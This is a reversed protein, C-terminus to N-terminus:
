QAPESDEIYSNSCEISDDNKIIQSYRKESPSIGVFIEEQEDGIQRQAILIMYHGPALNIIRSRPPEEPGDICMQGSEAELPILMIRHFDGDIDHGEGITLAAEGHPVITLCNIVGKRRAFGQRTHSPTWNCSADRVLFDYIAFQGYSIYM